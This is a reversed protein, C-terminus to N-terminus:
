MLALASRLSSIRQRAQEAESGTLGAKLAQEYSAVADASRGTRDYCIGLMYFLTPENSIASAAAELPQVADRYRGLNYRATGLGYWGLAGGPYGRVATLFQGEADGHRGEMLLVMGLGVNGPVYRRDLALARGYAAKAEGLRNLRRLADGKLRHFPAQDDRLGIAEDAAALAQAFNSAALLKTGRDYPEFARNVDKLRKLRREWRAAYVGDGQVYRRGLLGKEAILDEIEGVRNAAPPHTSLYRDLVGERDGALEGLMQQVEIAQRPDWGGLAMYYAGVRDAQREQERSYSLGLLAVSAQGAGVAVRGALTDGAAYDAVGLALGTLLSTSLQKASHGAAVHALEHGMVAAFQAENDLRALFGRTAYVHGPTAFANVVSTNLMTFEMPMEPRHSAAHLRMVITGLYGNLEPDHYEGDYMFIVNPHAQHGMALERTQTILVLEPRGTVPNVRCGAAVLLVSALCAAMLRRGPVASGQGEDRM